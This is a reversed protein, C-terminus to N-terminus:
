MSFHIAIISHFVCNLVPFSVSISCVIISKHQLNPQIQHASYNLIYEDILIITINNITDHKRLISAVMRAPTVMLTLM